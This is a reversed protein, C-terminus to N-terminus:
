WTFCCRRSSACCSYWCSCATQSCLSPEWTLQSYRGCWCGWWCSRSSSSIAVSPGAHTAERHKESRGTNKRESRPCVVVRKRSRSTSQQSEDAMKMGNGKMSKEDWFALQTVQRRIQLGKTPPPLPPLKQNIYLTEIQFSSSMKSTSPTSAQVVTFIYM